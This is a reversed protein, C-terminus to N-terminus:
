KPDPFSATPPSHDATPKRRPRAPRSTTAVAVTAPAASSAPESEHAPERVVDSPPPAAQVSERAIESQPAATQVPVPTVESQPTATQVSERAVESPPAPPPAPERQPTPAKVPERPTTPEARAATAPPAAHTARHEGDKRLLLFLFLFGVAAIGAAGAFIDLARLRRRPPEPRTEERMDEFRVPVLSDLPRWYTDTLSVKPQRFFSELESEGSASPEPKVANKAASPPPPPASGAAPQDRTPRDTM